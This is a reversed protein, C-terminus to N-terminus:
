GSVDDIPKLMCDALMCDALMCDALMCNVAAAVDSGFAQREDITVLSMQVATKANAEGVLDGIVWIRSLICAKQAKSPERRLQIRLLKPYAVFSTALRGIDLLRSQHSSLKLSGTSTVYGSFHVENGLALLKGNFRNAGFLM